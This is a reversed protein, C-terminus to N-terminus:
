RKCAEDAAQVAYGDLYWGAKGRVVHFLGIKNGAEDRAEFEASSSTSSKLAARSAAALKAEGMAFERRTMQTAVLSSETAAVSFALAAEASEGVAPSGDLQVMVWCGWSETSAATSPRVSLGLGVM